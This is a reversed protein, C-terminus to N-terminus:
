YRPDWGFGIWSTRTLDGLKFLGAYRAEHTRDPPEYLVSRLDLTAANQAVEPPMASAEFM